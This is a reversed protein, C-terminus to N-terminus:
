VGPKVLGSILKIRMRYGLFYNLNLWYAHWTLINEKVKSFGTKIDPTSPTINILSFM